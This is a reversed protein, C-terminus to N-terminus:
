KESKATDKVKSKEEAKKKSKLARKDKKSVVSKKKQDLMKKFRDVRGTSDVIKKKGTYIPHCTGCVEVNIEPVVSRTEFANGCVCKVSCKGYKPHIDKKMKTNLKNSLVLKKL